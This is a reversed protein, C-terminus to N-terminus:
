HCDNKRWGETFSTSSHLSHLGAAEWYHPWCHLSVLNGMGLKQTDSPLIYCNHCLSFFSEDLTGPLPSFNSAMESAEKALRRGVLCLCYLLGLERNHCNLSKLSLRVSSGTDTKCTHASLFYVCSFSIEEWTCLNNIKLSQLSQVYRKQLQLTKFCGSCVQLWRSSLVHANFSGVAMLEWHLLFFFFCFLVSHSYNRELYSIM